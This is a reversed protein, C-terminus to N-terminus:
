CGAKEHNSTTISVAEGLGVPTTIDTNPGQDQQWLGVAQSTGNAVWIDSQTVEKLFWTWHDHKAM